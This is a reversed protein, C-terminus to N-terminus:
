NIILISNNNGEERQILYNEPDTIWEGNVVFKYFHKGPPMNLKVEWGLETKNMPISTPNWNNFSGALFVSDADEFEKLMFNHDKGILLISNYTAHQNLLKLNNSPDEMWEGDVIFKYEYIGPSLEMVIEWGQISKEMLIDSPEWNNFSGALYVKEAEPFGSLSFPVNGKPNVSAILPKDVNLEEPDLFESLPRKWYYNDVLYKTIAKYEDTFDELAKKFRYQFENIKEIQWGQFNITQSEIFRLIDLEAFSSIMSRESELIADINRIDFKYYVTDAEIFMSDAQSFSFNSLLM